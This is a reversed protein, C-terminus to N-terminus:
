ASACVSPATDVVEAHVGFYACVACVGTKIKEELGERKWNFLTQSERDMGLKTSMQKAPLTCLPIHGETGLVYMEGKAM